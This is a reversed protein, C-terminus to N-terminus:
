LKSVPVIGGDFASNLVEEVSQVLTIKMSDQALLHLGLRGDM